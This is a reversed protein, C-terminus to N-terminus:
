CSSVYFTDTPNAVASGIIRANNLYFGPGGSGTGGMVLVIQDAIQDADLGLDFSQWGEM